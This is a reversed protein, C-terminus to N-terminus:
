SLVRGAWDALKERFIKANHRIDVPFKPHHLFRTITKTHPHKAAIRALEEKAFLDFDFRPPWEMFQNPKMSRDIEVCLVPVTSGKISVGVLATRSVWLHTNFVGECPITFLTGDKTVVRHSKRGCFWLRGRDDLYGVDGMRHWFGGRGPDAIKHLATAQPRNFYSRTVVPGSVVVEGVQGAPVELDDSWAAIPEDSIRIVRVQMGEVPRGVCVGKGEAALPGTEGLIEDSGITSVPLAETAGYPTHVRAGEPLLEAVRRIVAPSVPAGASIVRRLSRLDGPLALGSFAVRRLLAPSGCLNTVRYRRITVSNNTTPATSLVNKMTVAFAVEGVDNFITPCPSTTTCPAPATMLTLVDSQLPNGLTVTTGGGREAQFVVARLDPM